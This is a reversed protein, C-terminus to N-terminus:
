TTATAHHSVAAEARAALVAFDLNRVLFSDFHGAERRREREASTMVLSIRPVDHEGAAACLNAASLHRYDVILLDTSDPDLRGADLLITGKPLAKKLRKTFVKTMSCVHIRM